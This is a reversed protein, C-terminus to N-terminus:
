QLRITQTTARVFLEPIDYKYYLKKIYCPVEIGLEKCAAENISSKNSTAKYITFKDIPVFYVINPRKTTKTERDRFNFLFGALVGKHEQAEKLAKIQHKKIIKEDFSFSTGQTSKLEVCLLNPYMYMYGDYPSKATFKSFSGSSSSQEGSNWSTASDNHRQFFINYQNCSDKIAQEFIKGQNKAM